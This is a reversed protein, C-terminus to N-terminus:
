RRSGPSPAASAASGSVGGPRATSPLPDRSPAGSCLRDGYIVLVITSGLAVGAGLWGLASWRPASRRRRTRGEPRAAPHETAEADLVDADPLSVAEPRAKGRWPLTTDDERPSASKAGFAADVLESMSKKVTPDAERPRAAEILSPSPERRVTQDVRTEGEDAPDDIRSPM